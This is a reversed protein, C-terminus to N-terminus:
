MNAAAVAPAPEAVPQPMQGKIVRLTDELTWNRFEPRREARPILWRQRAAVSVEAASVVDRVNPRVARGTLLKSANKALACLFVERRLNHRLIDPNMSLSELALRVVRIRFNPGQGFQHAKARKAYKGRKRALFNRLDAFLRDNIQFHGWGATFGIPQFYHTSGLRLRNYLSSRGLSSTTTVVFLRAHKRKGSIIGKTKGYKREFAEAVEKTRVLCAVLKGGLLQNYPPIAGLVYADMVNVLGKSRQKANWGLHSDRATMNFVPDGLAIIGMLKNNSRDWVLFRMRRGYGSSVPVSWTLSALRFLYGRWDEKSKKSPPIEELEAVINEPNIEAGAAFHIKLEEFKKKFWRDTRDLKAKKQKRHLHRYTDKSSDPPHLSGDESKTFGLSKLHARIRRKLNAEDQLAPIVKM